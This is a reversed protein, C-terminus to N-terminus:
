RPPQNEILIALSSLDKSRIRGDQDIDCQLSRYPHDIVMESNELVRKLYDYDRQDVSGDLTIDGRIAPYTDFYQSLENYHISLKRHIRSMTSHYADLLHENYEYKKILHSLIFSLGAVEAQLRDYSHKMYSVAGTISPLDLQLKQRNRLLFLEIEIEELFKVKYNVLTLAWKNFQAEYYRKKASSAKDDPLNKWSRYPTPGLQKMQAYMKAIEPHTVFRDETFLYTKNKPQTNILHHLYEHMIDMLSVDQKVFIVPIERTWDFKGKFVYLGTTRPSVQLTNIIKIMEDSAAYEEPVTTINRRSVRFPLAIVKLSGDDTISKIFQPVSTANMIKDIGEQSVVSGLPLTIDEAYVGNSFLCFFAGLIALKPKFSRKTNMTGM